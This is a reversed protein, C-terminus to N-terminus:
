LGWRWCRTGPQRIHILEHALTAGIEDEPLRQLGSNVIIGSAGFPSYFASAGFRADQLEYVAPVELGLRRSGERVVEQVAMGAPPLRVLRHQFLFVIWTLALFGLILALGVWGGIVGGAIFVAVPVPSLMGLIRFPAQKVELRVQDFVRSKVQSFWAETEPDRETTLM